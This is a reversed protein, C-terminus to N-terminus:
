EKFKKLHLYKGLLGKLIMIDKKDFCKTIFILFLYLCLFFFGILILSSISIQIVKKFLLVITTPILSIVFISIVKKRTPIISTFYKLELSLMLSLLITALTTSFAAGNIGYIPILIWNFTLNFLSVIVLNLLILKSKGLSLLINQSIPLSLSTIFIGISLIKLSTAAGIYEPGFLLNILVGPFLFMIIFIPLNLIFIWKGVQKSLEKILLPNKRSVEKNILPFFMQMFIEPVFWLLAVIPVAANYIGVETIGKFFGISLSDIWYLILNIIGFFMIPWSYNFFEKNTKTKDRKTISYKEFIEPYKIKCIFYGLLLMSLIGLFYSFVVANIKIGIFIFLILALVKIINQFINSIFSYWFIDEYARIISLFLNSFIYVPILFSFIKLFISLELNKFLNASIFDASFFLFAGALISSFLFIKASYRFIYRVKNKQRKGLYFSVFRLVGQDFGFSAFSILFLFIILALSFLGYIEPGFYRAVILRYFYFFLKSFFLGVFVFVSSEALTKLGNNVNEEHNGKKM